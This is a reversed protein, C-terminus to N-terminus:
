QSTGVIGDNLTQCTLVNVPRCVISSGVMPDSLAKVWRNCAVILHKFGLQQITRLVSECTSIVLLKSEYELAGDDCVGRSILEERVSDADLSIVLAICARDFAAIM